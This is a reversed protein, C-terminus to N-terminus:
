CFLSNYLHLLKEVTQNWSFLEVARKRATKGMSKRMEEDLLLCLIAEALASADGRKVLLGTKGHTIIEPIGGGNTGIAPVGTAMAEAIPMGFPENWLSPFVFVDANQYYSALQTHPVPGVFCVHDLLSQPLMSKLISVYNKSFSLAPDLIASVDDLGVNFQPRLSGLQGVIELEAQPYRKSVKQFASLLVHVGKEPSVRGVFLIRKTGRESKAHRSLGFQEIDVGEFLTHCWDAFQPFRRRIKNTIYNSCGLILDAKKLRSEIIVPNFQTLWECHMHLVIKIKPNFARIIPIFQSFTHVHVIDCKEASLDKAAQLAYLFYYLSSNFLPARLGWFGLTYRDIDDILGTLKADMGLSIRKYEVGQYRECVKQGLDRRTYVIVDCYKSLRSAVKYTWIELSSDQNLFNISNIPQHLFAIKM